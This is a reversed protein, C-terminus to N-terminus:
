VTRSRIVDMMDCYAMADLGDRFFEVLFYLVSMYDGYKILLRRRVPDGTVSTVLYVHYPNRKDTPNHLCQIHAHGKNVDLIKKQKYM